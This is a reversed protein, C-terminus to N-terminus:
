KRRIDGDPESHRHLLLLRAIWHGLLAVVLSGTVSLTVLAVSFTRLTQVSPTSDIAVMFRVSPRKMSAPVTGILRKMPYPKDDVQLEGLGDPIGALM